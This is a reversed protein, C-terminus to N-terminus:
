FLVYVLDIESRGRKWRREFFDWQKKLALHVWICRTSCRVSDKSWFPLYVAGVNQKPSM